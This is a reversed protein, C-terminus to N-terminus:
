DTALAKIAALKQNLVLEKADLAQQMDRQRQETAAVANERDDLKNTRERSQAEFQDKITALDKEAADARVERETVVTARADLSSSVQLTKAKDAQYAAQEKEFAAQAAEQAATQADVKSQAADVDAKATMLDSLAQRHAAPDTIVNLLGMLETMTGRGITFGSM